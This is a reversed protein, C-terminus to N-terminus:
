ENTVDELDLNDIGASILAEYFDQKKLDRKETEKVYAVFIEEFKEQVQKHLSKPVKMSLVKTEKAETSKAGTEEKEFRGALREAREQDETDAM